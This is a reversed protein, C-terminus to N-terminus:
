KQLWSESLAGESLLIGLINLKHKRAMIPFSLLLSLSSFLHQDLKQFFCKIENLGGFLVM